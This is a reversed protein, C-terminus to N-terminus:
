QKKDLQNCDSCPCDSCVTKKQTLYEGGKKIWKSFPYALSYLTGKIFTGVSTLQSGHTQDIYDTDAYNNYNCHKSNDLHLALRMIAFAGLAGLACKAYTNHFLNQAVNVVVAVTTPKPHYPCPDLQCM